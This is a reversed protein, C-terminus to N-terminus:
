NDLREAKVAIRKWNTNIPWCSILYLISKGEQVELNVKSPAKIEKGVVNYIYKKDGGFVFIKDGSNLQNLLSFVSGYLGKYWPYASSHGLLMITGKQDLFSSTPWNIVGDKLAKQLTNEDTAKPMVIPADVGISSIIIRDPKIFRKENDIIIEESKEEVITLKQIKEQDLSYYKLQAYFFRGNLIIVVFVFVIVFILLFIILEKTM